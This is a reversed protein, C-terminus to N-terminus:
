VVSGDDGSRLEVLDCVQNAIWLGYGSAGIAPRIRGAMPDAILGADSIECVISGDDGWIRLTGRGGAHRVSNSAVEHVALVLDAAREPRLGSRAAQSEVFRRLHRLGDENFGVLDNAALPDALPQDFPLRIDALGRYEESARERGREMLWPHNRRADSIVVPDLASTDYPCLIRGDADQLALNLLAEHRAWEALEEPTRSAWVPEGWWRLGARWAG